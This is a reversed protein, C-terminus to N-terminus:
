RLMMESISVESGTKDRSLKRLRRLLFKKNKSSDSGSSLSLHVERSAVHIVSPEVLPYSGISKCKICFCSLSCCNVCTCVCKVCVHRFEPGTDPWCRLRLNQWQWVTEQRKEEETGIEFSRGFAYVATPNM